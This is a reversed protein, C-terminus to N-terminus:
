PGSQELRLAAFTTQAHVKGGLDRLELVGFEANADLDGALGTIKTEGFSNRTRLAVSKPARIELDSQFAVDRPKDPFSVKLRLRDGDLVAQCTVSEAVSAATSDTGAGVKLKWSWGTADGEAPAVHICGFRNEIEMSQLTAPLDGNAVRNTIAKADAMSGGPSSDHVVFVCGGALALLVPALLLPHRNRFGHRAFIKM